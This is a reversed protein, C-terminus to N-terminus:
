WWVAHLDKIWLSEKNLKKWFSDNNGDSKQSYKNNNNILVKRLMTKDEECLDGFGVHHLTLAHSQLTLRHAVGIWGNVPAKGVAFQHMIVWARDQVVVARQVDEDGRELVAAGEVAYGGVGGADGGCGHLDVHDRQREEDVVRTVHPLGVRSEGVDGGGGFGAAVVGFRLVLPHHHFVQGSVWGDDVPRGLPVNGPDSHVLDLVVAGDVVGQHVPLISKMVSVYLCVHSIFRM